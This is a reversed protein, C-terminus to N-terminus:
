DLSAQERGEGHVRSPSVVLRLSDLCTLTTAKCVDFAGFPRVQELTIAGETMGIRQSSEPPMSGDDDDDADFNGTPSTARIGGFSMKGKPSGFTPAAAASSGFM